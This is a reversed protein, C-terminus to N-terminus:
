RVGGGAVLTWLTRLMIQLDLGLSFYKLYYLDYGLKTRSEELNAAYGARVQAWGSIGPKVLQRYAFAPVQSAYAESLGPQEPRPGIFSMEGLAVNWFQPIEDIRFRRLFRGLPTVRRDGVDTASEAEGARVARMTRLKVMQFPRGGLGVRSQVFFVPRGMAVLVVIMAAALLPLLFPAILVLVVLDLLRKGRQYSVLGGESVHTLDFHEISVRGRAEELYEALHRVPKRTLLARSITGAWEPPVAGTFTTLVLEFGHLSAAPDEIHDIRAGVHSAVEHWPGILAISRPMLRARLGMAVVGLIASVAVSPIMVRISYYSHGLLLIMALSGHLGLVLNLLSVLRRDLRGKLGWALVTVWANVACNALIHLELPRSLVFRGATTLRAIGIYLFPEGALGFLVFAGLVGVPVPWFEGASGMRRREARIVGSDSTM